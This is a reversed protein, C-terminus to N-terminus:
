LKVGSPSSVVAAAGAGSAGWARDCYIVWIPDLPTEELGENKPTWDALLEALAQSKIMIRAIFTLM